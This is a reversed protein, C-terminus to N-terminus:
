SCTVARPTGPSSSRSRSPGSTARSRDGGRGPRPWRRSRCPAVVLVKEAAFWWGARALATITIARALTALLAVLALPRRQVAAAAGGGLWGAAVLVALLVDVVLLSGTTM